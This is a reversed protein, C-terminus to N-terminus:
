IWRRNRKSNREKISELVEYFERFKTGELNATLYGKENGKLTKILEEQIEKYKEFYMKNVFKGKVDILAYCLKKQEADVSSLRNEEIAKVEDYMKDSDKTRLVENMEETKKSTEAIKKYIDANNGSYNEKPTIIQLGIMVDEDDMDKVIEELNSELGDLVTDKQRLGVGLVRYLEEPQVEGSNLYNKYDEVEQGSFLDAATQRIFSSKRGQYAGRLASDINKFEKYTEKFEEYKNEM